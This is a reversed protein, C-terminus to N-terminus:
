HWVPTKPRCREPHITARSRGQAKGRQAAPAANSERFFSLPPQRDSADRLGFGISAITLNWEQGGIKTSPADAPTQEENVLRHSAPTSTVGSEAPVVPSPSTFRQIPGPKKAQAPDSSLHVPFVTVSVFVVHARHRDPISSIISGVDM